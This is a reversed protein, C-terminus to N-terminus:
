TGVTRSIDEPGRTGGDFGFHDRDVGTHPVCLQYGRSRGGFIDDGYHGNGRPDASELENDISGPKSRIKNKGDVLRDGDCELSGLTYTMLVQNRARDVVEVYGGALVPGNGHCQPISSALMHATRHGSRNGNLAAREREIAKRI